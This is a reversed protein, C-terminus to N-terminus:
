LLITEHSDPVREQFPQLRVQHRTKKEGSGPTFNMEGFKRSGFKCRKKREQFGKQVSPAQESFQVRLVQVKRIYM